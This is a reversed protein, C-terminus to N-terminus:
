RASGPKPSATKVSVRAGPTLRLQGDTVVVEGGRLGTRIVAVDGDTRDVTVPREEVTSDPKVVFVFSGQQGPQVAVAPVVVAHSELALRLTVEVFQGPWLRRDRNAFTAKLRVTDTAQDVANDLFTVRGSSPPDSAGSVVAQVPLAGRAQEARIESLLRSPVSFSVYIPALQNIVVLPSVDNARVLAGPHVLLAGTRGSVPAAIKTYQLQLKANEVQAADADASAQLAAASAVLADYDSQAVLGQKLLDANRDRQAQANRVQAQDKALAAQVQRLTAEFPRPDLTFLLQGATVEQGETFGVSLLAGTVQSRVEVTSSAEVNGVAQLNVPMAKVVVPATDVPVASDGRGRGGRGASQADAAASPGRSCSTLLLVFSLGTLALPIARSWSGPRSVVDM